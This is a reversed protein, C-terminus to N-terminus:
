GEPTDTAASNRAAKAAYRLKLGYVRRKLHERQFQANQERQRSRVTSRGVIERVTDDLRESAAGVVPDTRELEELDVALGLNRRGRYASTWRTRVAVPPGYLTPKARLWDPEEPRGARIADQIAREIESLAFAYPTWETFRVTGQDVASGRVRYMGYEDNDRRRARSRSIEVGIWGAMTRVRQEDSM